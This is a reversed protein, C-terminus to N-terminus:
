ESIVLLAFVTASARFRVSTLRHEATDRRVNRFWEASLWCAVAPLALAYLAAQPTRLAPILLAGCWLTLGLAVHWCAELWVGQTTQVHEPLRAAYRFYCGAGLALLGTIAFRLAPIQSLDPNTLYNMGLLLLTLGALLVSGDHLWRAIAVQPLRPLRRVLWQVSTLEFLSLLAALGFIHAPTLQRDLLYRGWIVCVAFLNALPLLCEAVAWLASRRAYWGALAFTLVAAYPAMTQLAHADDAQGAVTLANQYVAAGAALALGPLIFWTAQPAGTMAPLQPAHGRLLVPWRTALLRAPFPLLVLVLAMAALHWPRSLAEPHGPLLCLLYGFLAALLAFGACAQTRAILLLCALLLGCTAPAPLLHQLGDRGPAITLMALITFLPTLLTAGAVFPARLPLLWAHPQPLFALATDAMLVALLLEPLTGLSAPLDSLVCLWSAVLTFLVAGFRRWTTRMGHWALQAVLFLALWHLQGRSEHRDAQVLIALLVALGVCGRALLRLRPQVICEGLWTCRQALMAEVALLVTLAMGTILLPYQLMGLGHCGAADCALAIGLGLLLWFVHFFFKGCLKLRGQITAAYCAAAMAFASIIYPTQDPHAQLQLLLAKASLWAAAAWLPITFLGLSLRRDELRRVVFCGLTLVLAALASPMGSGVFLWAPLVHDPTHFFPLIVTPLVVALRAPLRARAQWAIVGLVASLLLGGAFDAQSLVPRGVLNLRMVLACLGVMGFGSVVGVINNRWLEGPLFRTAIAWAAALLSLGLALTNTDFRYNLMDACGLYPLAIGACIAALQLWDQRSERTARVAFFLAGVLLLVGTQLPSSRLSYQSLVTVIVTLLLLPPQMELAVQRLRAENRLGALARVAGVLLALGLGLAPLLNLEASKPFARLMGVAAGGLLCLTAGIWYHVVGPRRPAQVLWIVGALLLAAVRLGEQGAAMLIGLLLAAYGLFSEGGYAAGTARLECARREWRLVIAGALIMALAYDQPHVALHLHFHRWAAVQLTTAAMTIGFFWPVLKEALLERTLLLRLFRNAIALLLLVMVTISFPLLTARHAEAAERIGPMDGLVALLNIALLPLGLLVCLERRLAGCWRWLGLGALATYIGFAPLLLGAARPDSGARCLVMFNVPLLCVAGGLLFTGTIQLEQHRRFLRRGLEAMGGTFAALLLPLFLYRVFASKDWTFYALLSVGAVVMLLGALIYWNAALFPQLHTEWITPVPPAAPPPPQVPVDEPAAEEAIPLLPPEDDMTDLPLPPPEVATHLPLPTPKSAVVRAMMPVQPLAAPNLGQLRAAEAPTLVHEWRRVFEGPQFTRLALEASERLLAADKTADLTNAEERMRLLGLEAQYEATLRSASVRSKQSGNQIRQLWTRWEQWSIAQIGTLLALAHMVYPQLTPAAECVQLLFPAAEADPWSVLQRLADPVETGPASAAALRALEALHGPGGPQGVGAPHGAETPPEDVPLATSDLLSWCMPHRRLHAQQRACAESITRLPITMDPAVALLFARDRELMAAAQLITLTPDDASWGDAPLDPPLHSLEPTNHWAQEANARRAAAALAAKNIIRTHIRQALLRSEPDDRQLLLALLAYLSHGAETDSPLLKQLLPAMEAYSFINEQVAHRLLELALTDPQENGNDTM